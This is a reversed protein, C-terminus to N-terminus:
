HKKENKEKLLPMLTLGVVILFASYWYYSFDRKHYGETLRPLQQGNVDYLYIKADKACDDCTINISITDGKKPPNEHLPLRIINSPEDEYTYEFVKEDGNSVTITYSYENISDDGFILQIFSADDSTIQVDYSLPFSVDSLTPTGQYDYFDKLVLKPPQIILVLVFALVGLAILGYVIIKQYYKKVLGM